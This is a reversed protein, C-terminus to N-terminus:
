RRRDLDDNPRVISGDYEGKLRARPTRRKAKVPIRRLAYWAGVGVIVLIAFMIFPWGIIVDKPLEPGPGTRWFGYLALV